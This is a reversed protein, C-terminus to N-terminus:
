KRTQDYSLAYAHQRDRTLNEGRTSCLERGMESASGGSPPRTRIQGLGCRDRRLPRIQARAPPRDWFSDWTSWRLWVMEM